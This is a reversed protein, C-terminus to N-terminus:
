KNLAKYENLKFVMAKAMATAVRCQLKIEDDDTLEYIIRLRQCISNQNANGRRKMQEVPVPDHPRHM